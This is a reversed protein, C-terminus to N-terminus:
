MVGVLQHRYLNMLLRAIIELQDCRQRWEAILRGRGTRCPQQRAGDFLPEALCELAQEAKEAQAVRRALHVRGIQRDALMGALFVGRCELKEVIHQIAIQLPHQQRQQVSRIMHDLGAPMQEANLQFCRLRGDAVEDTGAIWPQYRARYGGGPFQAHSPKCRVDLLRRPIRPRFYGFDRPRRYCQQRGSGLICMAPSFMTSFTIASSPTSSSFFRVGSCSERMAEMARSTFCGGLLTIRSGETGISASRTTTSPATSSLRSPSTSCVALCFSTRPAHASNSSSGM